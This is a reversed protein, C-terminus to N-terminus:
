FSKFVDSSINETKSESLFLSVTTACVASSKAAWSYESFYIIQEDFIM